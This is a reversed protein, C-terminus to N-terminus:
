WECVITELFREEIQQRTRRWDQKWRLQRDRKWKRALRKAKSVQRSTMNAALPALFRAEAKRGPRAIALNMWKYAEVQNLPVGEGNRYMLSLAYLGSADGQEAARSNWMFAKRYDRPVGNGVRYMNGLAAEARAEGQGAALRFWHLARNPNRPTGIGNRYMRGLWFQALPEGQEAVLEFCKFSRRYWKAAKDRDQWVWRTGRGYMSGLMFQAIADGREAKRRTDGVYEPEKPMIDAALPSIGAGLTLSTLLAVSVVRM